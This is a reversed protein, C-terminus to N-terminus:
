VHITGFDPFKSGLELDFGLFWHCNRGIGLNPIPFFQSGLFNPDRNAGRTWGSPGAAPNLRDLRKTWGCSETPGLRLTWQTWASQWFRKSGNPGLAQNLRLIWHTWASPEAVPDM